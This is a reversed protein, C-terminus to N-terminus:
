QDRLDHILLLVHLDSDECWSRLTDPAGTSSEQHFFCFSGATNPRMLIYRYAFHRRVSAVVATRECNGAMERGVQQRGQSRSFSKGVPCCAFQIRLHRISFAKATACMRTIRPAANVADASVPQGPNRYLCGRLQWLRMIGKRCRAGRLPQSIM